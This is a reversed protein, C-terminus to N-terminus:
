PKEGPPLLSVLFEYEDIAAQQARPGAVHNGKYVDGLAFNEESAVHYFEMYPTGRCSAQGTRKMVPCGYCPRDRFMFEQCLPCNKSGEDRGHGTVIREWKKISGRLAKLTQKNM